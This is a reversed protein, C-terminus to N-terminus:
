RRHHHGLHIGQHTTESSGAGFQPRSPVIVTTHDAGAPDATEAPDSNSDNSSLVASVLVLSVFAVATGAIWARRRNRGKAGDTRPQRYDPGAAPRDFRAYPRDSSWTPQGNLPRAPAASRAVVAPPRSATRHPGVPNARTPRPPHAGAGTRGAAPPNLYPMQSATPLSTMPEPPRRNASIRVTNADTSM